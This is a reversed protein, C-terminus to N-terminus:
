KLSRTGKSYAIPLNRVMFNSCANVDDFNLANWKRKKAGVESQLKRQSELKLKLKKMESASLIGGSKEVADAEEALIQDKETLNDEVSCKHIFDNQFLKLVVSKLDAIPKSFGLQEMHTLSLSGWKLLTQVIM